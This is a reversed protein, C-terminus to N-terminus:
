EPSYKCTARVFDATIREEWTTPQREPLYLIDKGYPTKVEKPRFNIGGVNVGEDEIETREELSERM